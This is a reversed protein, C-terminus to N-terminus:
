WIPQLTLMDLTLALLVTNIKDLFKTKHMRSLLVYANIM